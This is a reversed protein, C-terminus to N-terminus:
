HPLEPLPQDSLFIQHPVPRVLPLGYALSKGQFVLETSPGGDLLVATLCGLLQAYKALQDASMPSQSAGLVVTGNSRIGFFSRQRIALADNTGSMLIEPGELARGGKVLWGAALFADSLKPMFQRLRYEESMTEHVYPIFAINEDDWMVLPRGRLKNFDAIVQSSWFKGTRSDVCPGLTRPKARNPIGPSFASGNIAATAGMQVASQRVRMPADFLATNPYGGLVAAVRQRGIAINQPQIPAKTNLATLSFGAASQTEQRLEAIAEDFKNFPYRRIELIGASHEALGMQMGFAMRYGVTEAIDLTFADYNGGPWSLYEVHNGLNEELERKSEKLERWIAPVASKRIDQPHSCTHSGVTCDGTSTLKRLTSWTMKPRGVSNNGVFDTHVFVSYPFGHQRLIPVANDAVGQYNDDFTLVVANPPLPHGDVLHRYLEGISVVAFGGNKLVQMQRKFEEHDIDYVVSNASRTKLVDHYMLVLVRSKQARYDIDKFATVVSSAIARTVDVNVNAASATSSTIVSREIYNSQIPIGCGGLGFLASLLALRTRQIVQM